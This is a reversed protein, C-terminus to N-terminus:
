GEGSDQVVRWGDPTNIWVSAHQPGEFRNVVKGDRSTELFVRTVVYCTFRTDSVTMSVVVSKKSDVKVDIGKYQAPAHNLDQALYQDTAIRKMLVERQQSDPTVYAQEYEWIQQDSPKPHDSVIPPSPPSTEGSDDLEGTTTPQVSPPSSSSATPRPGPASSTTGSGTETQQHMSSRVVVGVVILIALLVLLVVFIVIGMRPRTRTDSM